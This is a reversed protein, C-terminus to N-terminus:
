AKAKEEASPAKADKSEPKADKGNAVVKAEAPKSVEKPPEPAKVPAAPNEKATPAQASKSLDKVGGSAKALMAGWMGGTGHVREHIQMKVTATNLDVKPQKWPNAFTTPKSPKSGESKLVMPQGGANEVPIGNKSKEKTPTQVEPPTVPQKKAPVEVKKLKESVIKSSALSMKIHNMRESFDPIAKKQVLSFDDLHQYRSDVYKELDERDEVLMSHALLNSVWVADKLQKELSQKEISAIWEPGTYKEIMADWDEPKETTGFEDTQETEASVDEIGLAGFKQASLQRIEDLLKKTTPSKQMDSAEQFGELMNGLIAADRKKRLLEFFEDIKKTVVESEGRSHANFIVHAMQKAQEKEESFNEM